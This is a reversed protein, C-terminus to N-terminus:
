PHLGSVCISETSHVAHSPSSQGGVWRRRGTANCTTHAGECIQCYLGLGAAICKLRLKTANDLGPRAWDSEFSTFLGDVSM